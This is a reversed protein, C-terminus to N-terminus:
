TAADGTQDKSEEGLASNGSQPMTSGQENEHAIPDWGPCVQGSKAFEEDPVITIIRLKWKGVRLILVREDIVYKSLLSWQPGRAPTFSLEEDMGGQADAKAGIYLGGAQILRHAESSSSVLNASWSIRTLPQGVVLSRPLMIRTQGATEMSLPSAHKNLLPHIFAQAGDSQSSSDGIKAASSETIDKLSIGKSHVARHEQEAKEADGQGHILEVFERALRHHPIRKSADKEHSQMLSDIEPLSVFTLLKLYKKVDADDARLFFQSRM